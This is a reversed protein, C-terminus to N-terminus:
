QTVVVSATMFPHITCLYEFTGATDFTYRYTDGAKMVPSKLPGSGDKSTVTHPDTDKNTWVVTTGVKVNLTGPAYAFSAISVSSGAGPVPSGGSTTAPAPAAPPSISAPQQSGCATLVLLLAVVVGTGSRM